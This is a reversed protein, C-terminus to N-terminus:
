LEVRNKLADEKLKRKRETEIKRKKQKEKKKNVDSFTPAFMQKLKELMRSRAIKRNQDQSRSEQCKVIIGTKIHKLEVCSSTKNIKQGGPGSGRIFKEEIEDENLTLFEEEETSQQKQLLREPKEELEKSVCKEEVLDIVNSLSSEKGNTTKPSFSSTHLSFQHLYQKTPTMMPPTLTLQPSGINRGGASHYSIIGRAVAM